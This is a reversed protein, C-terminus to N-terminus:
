ANEHAVLQLTGIQHGTVRTLKVKRNTELRRVASSDQHILSSSVDQNTSDLDGKRGGHKQKCRCRRVYTGQGRVLGDAVAAGCAAPQVEPDFNPLGAEDPL